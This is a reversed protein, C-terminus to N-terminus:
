RGVCASPHGPQIFQVVQWVGVKALVRAQRVHSSIPAPGGDITNHPGIFAVGPGHLVTGVRNLTVHLKWALATQVGHNIVAVSSKCPYVGDHGGVAKVADTLQDLITVADRATPEQARAGSIRGSAFPVALAILVVAAAVTAIRAVPAAPLLRGAFLAVRAVGAGALVCTLAATPLFFRELGPYGDLVSGAVIAAWALAGAAIWLTVRDRERFWTWVVAVVAMVILPKVQVNVARGIATFLPHAGLHGNYDQAHSAALFPSGSGIWPIIFWGFPIALIGAVLLVRTRPEKFWMWIALALVFPSAEPRILATAVGVAFAQSYRRELLRDVSWLAGAILAPESTGRFMYYAWDQTLVIGLIAVVAAIPAALPSGFGGTVRGALRWAAVLGLLGGARAVIVWLTPAAGGFLAFVTTFLLPLPKFSPGGGIFFSLHPDVVERGWVIWSWPDYSPVTPLVAASLAALAVCGVIAVLGPSREVARWLPSRANSDALPESDPPRTPPPDVVVQGAVEDDRAPM